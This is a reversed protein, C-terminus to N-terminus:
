ETDAPCDYGCYNELLSSYGSGAVRRIVWSQPRLPATKERGFFFFCGPM